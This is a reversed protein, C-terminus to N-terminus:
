SEPQESAAGTLFNEDFTEPDLADLRLFRYSIEGMGGILNGEADREMAMITMDDASGMHFIVQGASQECAFGIGMGTEPDATRGSTEDEFVYYLETIGDTQAAYVGRRFYTEAAAPQTEAVATTEPQFDEPAMGDMLVFTYAKNDLTGVPHGDSDTHMMFVISSVSGFQMTVSDADQECTFDVYADEAPDYSRGNETDTFLYYGLDNGDEECRIKYVGTEFWVTRVAETTPATAPETAKETTSATTAAATSEASGAAASETAAPAAPASTRGCGCLMLALLLPVLRMRYKM